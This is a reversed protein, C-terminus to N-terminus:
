QFFSYISSAVSSPRPSASTEEADAIAYPAHADSLDSEGSGVVLCSPTGDLCPAVVYDVAAVSVKGLTLYRM